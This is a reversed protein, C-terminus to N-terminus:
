LMDYIKGLNLDDIYRFNGRNVAYVQQEYDPDKEDAIAYFVGRAVDM